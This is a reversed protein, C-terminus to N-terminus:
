QRRIRIEGDSVSYSLGDFYGPEAFRLAPYHVEFYRGIKGPIDNLSHYKTEDYGKLDVPSVAETGVGLVIYRDRMFFFAPRARCSMIYLAAKEGTLRVLTEAEDDTWIMTLEEGESPLFSLAGLEWENGCVLPKLPQEVIFSLLFPLAIPVIVLVPFVGILIGLVLAAGNSLHFVDSGLSPLGAGSWWLGASALLSGALFLLRRPERRKRFYGIAESSLYASLLLVIIFIWFRPDEIM